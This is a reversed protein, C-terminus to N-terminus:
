FPHQALKNKQARVILYAVALLVRFALIKRPRTCRLVYGPLFALKVFNHAAYALRLAIGFDASALLALRALIVRPRKSFRLYGLTAAACRRM